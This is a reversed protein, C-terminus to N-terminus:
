CSRERCPNYTTQNFRTMAAFSRCEKQLDFFDAPSPGFVEAPFKWFSNPTFLYVLQGPNGYPLSQILVANVLSFIATCAGIGLALTFVTVVTLSRYKVMTLLAYRLDQALNDLWAVGRAEYCEEIATPLNGFSDKAASRAEEPSMGNAINAETQRELHFQLEESLQVNSADKKWLSLLRRRLSHIFRMDVGNM